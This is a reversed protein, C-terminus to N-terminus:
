SLIDLWGRIEKRIAATRAAKAKQKRSKSYAVVAWVASGALAVAALKKGNKKVYEVADVRRLIARNEEELLEEEMAFAVDNDRELKQAETAADLNELHWPAETEAKRRERELREAEYEALKTEIESKLEEAIARNNNAKRGFIMGVVSTVVAIGGFVVISLWSFDSVSAVVLLLYAVLGLLATFIGIMAVSKGIVTQRKAKSLHDYVPEFSPAELLEADNEFFDREIQETLADVEANAEALERRAKAERYSEEVDKLDAQRAMRERVVRQLLNRCKSAAEPLGKRKVEGLKEVLKAEQEEFAAIEERLSDALAKLALEEDMEITTEVVEEIPEAADLIKEDKEEM